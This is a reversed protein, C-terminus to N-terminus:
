KSLIYARLRACRIRVGGIGLRSNTCLKGYEMYGVIIASSLVSSDQGSISM